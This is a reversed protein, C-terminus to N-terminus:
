QGHVHYSDSGIKIFGFLAYHAGQQSVFYSDGLHYTSTSQKISFAWSRLEYLQDYIALRVIHEVRVM